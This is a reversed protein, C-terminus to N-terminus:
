FWKAYRSKRLVGLLIYLGVTTLPLFLPVLIQLSIYMQLSMLMMAGLVSISIQGVWRNGWWETRYITIGKALFAALLVMWLDPIPRILSRQQWQYALYAHINGGPMKTVGSQWYRVAQPAIYRDANKYEVGAEDYLGPAILVMQQPLNYLEPSNKSLELFKWAPMTQYIVDPRISYDILPHLWMQGVGYSLRTMPSPSLQELSELAQNCSQESAGSAPKTGLCSLQYALPLFSQPTDPLPAYISSRDHEQSTLLLDMAGYHVGSTPFLDTLPQQCSQGGCDVGVVLPLGQQVLRQTLQSFPQDVEKQARDLLYDLGVIPAEVQKAKTLLQGIYAKNIPWVPEIRNKDISEPDVQVLLIPPKTQPMQGTMDRYVAQVWQRQDILTQQVNLMGSMMVLGTLGVAEWGTPLWQRFKAHVGVPRAQFLPADPHCYLSPVLHASPFKLRQQLYHCASRVATYINQYSVLEKVLQLFFEQAVQNHIPERMIVVQSLGLDVLGEAINLGSCSNFIAVKLGRQQAKKLFPRLESMLLAQGPAIFIKGQSLETENSHGAFFLMDWGVDETLAKIIQEKLDGESLGAQWGIFYVDAVKTARLTELAEYEREFNLGSDDGMIALIRLRGQRQRMNAEYSINMPSRIIQVPQATGSQQGIDWAEWPLRELDIKDCSLFLVVPEGKNTRTLETLQKRLPLLEAHSLWTDFENLLVVEAQALKVRWDEPPLNGSGSQNVRGRLNKYVQSYLNRWNAYFNTLSSPYEVACQCLRGRGTDLQFICTREVQSVRLFIRNTSM